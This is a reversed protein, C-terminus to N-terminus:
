PPDAPSRSRRLVMLVVCGFIGLLSVIVLLIGVARRIRQAKDPKGFERRSMGVGHDTPREFTWGPTDATVGPRDPFRILAVEVSGNRAPERSPTPLLIKEAEYGSFSLFLVGLVAARGTRGVVRALPFVTELVTRLALESRPLGGRHTLQTASLV